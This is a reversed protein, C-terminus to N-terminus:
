EMNARLNRSLKILVNQESMWTAKRKRKKSDTSEMDPESGSDNADVSLQRKCSESKEGECWLTITTNTGQRRLLQRLVTEWDQETRIWVRKAGLTLSWTVLSL